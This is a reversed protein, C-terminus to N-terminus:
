PHCWDLRGCSIDRCHLPPFSGAFSGNRSSLTPSRKSRFPTQGLNKPNRAVTKTLGNLSKSFLVDQLATAAIAGVDANGILGRQDSRKGLGDPNFLIQQLLDNFKPQQNFGLEGIQRCFADGLFLQIAEFDYDAVLVPSIQRALLIGFQVRGEVEFQGFGGLVTDDQFHDIGDIPDEVLTTGFGQLAIGPSPSGDDGMQFNDVGQFSPVWFPRQLGHFVVKQCNFLRDESRIIM